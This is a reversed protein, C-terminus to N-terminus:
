EFLDVVKVGLRWALRSACAIIIDEDDDELIKRLQFMSICCDLCFRVQTICKSDLYEYILEKKFRM